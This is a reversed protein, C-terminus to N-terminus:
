HCGVFAENYKALSAKKVPRHKSDKKQKFIPSRLFCTDTFPDGRRLKRNMNPEKYCVSVTCRRKGDPIGQKEDTGLRPHSIRNTIDCSSSINTIDGLRCRSAESLEGKAFSCQINGFSSNGDTRKVGDVAVLPLCAKVEDIKRVANSKFSPEGTVSSSAVQTSGVTSISKENSKTSKIESKDLYKEHQQLQEVSRKTQKRTHAPSTDSECALCKRGKSKKSYPEYSSDDSDVESVSPESCAEMEPTNTEVAIDNENVKNQRFPTVHRSEESIFDYADSSGVSLDLKEKSSRKKGHRDKELKTRSPRKTGELKGKEGKEQRLQPAKKKLQVQKPKAVSCNLETLTPQSSLPNANIKKENGHCLRLEVSENSNEKSEELKSESNECVEGRLQIVESHDLDRKCLEKQIKMKSCHRRTSVNRSLLVGASKDENPPLSKRESMLNDLNFGPVHGTNTDTKNVSSANEFDQRSCSVFDEVNKDTNKEKKNGLLKGEVNTDAVRICRPFPLSDANRLHSTDFDELLTTCMTKTLDSSCLDQAPGLLDTTDLLNQFVKSIIKRLALLRSEVPEKAQQLNLERQLRFLQFKLFQYEKKLSLIIDQAEKMKGKEEQLALALAQNNEKFSKLQTSSNNAIKCKTSLVHNTKGLKAWKQNRKEKMREKIDELSDKFSRKLCSEVVM